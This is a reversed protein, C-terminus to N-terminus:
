ASSMVDPPPPAKASKTAATTTTTTTATSPATRFVIGFPIRRPLLISAILRRFRSLSSLSDTSNEDLSPPSAKNLTRHHQDQHQRRGKKAKMQFVVDLLRGPWLLSTLVRQLQRLRLKTRGRDSTTTTEHPAGPVLEVVRDAPGPDIALTPVDGDNQKEEEMLASVPVVAADLEEAKTRIPASSSASQQPIPTQNTHEAESTRL